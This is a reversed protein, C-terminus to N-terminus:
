CLGERRVYEYLEKVDEVTLFVKFYSHKHHKFSPIGRKILYITQKKDLKIIDAEEFSCIIEM